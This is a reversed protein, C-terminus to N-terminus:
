RAREVYPGDRRALYDRIGRVIARYSELPRPDLFGILLTLLIQTLTLKGIFMPFDRWYREV